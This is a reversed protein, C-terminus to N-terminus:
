NMGLAERILPDRRLRDVARSLRKRANASTMDSKEAIEDFSYGLCFRMYLLEQDILNLGSLGNAVADDVETASPEDIPVEPAHDLPMEIVARGYEKRRWSRVSTRAFGSVWSSLTGKTADFKALNQIVDILCEQALEQCQDANLGLQSFRRVLLQRLYNALAESQRADGEKAQTVWHNVCVADPIYDM